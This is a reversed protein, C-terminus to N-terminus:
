SHGQYYLRAKFEDLEGRFTMWDDVLILLADVDPAFMYPNLWLRRQWASLPLRDLEVVVATRNQLPALFPRRTWREYRPDYQQGLETLRTCQIARYPVDFQVFPLRLHLGEGRCQVHARLSFFLGLIWILAAIIAAAALPPRYAWPRDPGWTVLGASIAAIALSPWFIMESFRQQLLLRHRKGRQARPRQRKGRLFLFRRGERQSAEPVPQARNM